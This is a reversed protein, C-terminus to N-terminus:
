NQIKAHYPRNECICDCITGTCIYLTDKHVHMENHQAKCLRITLFTILINDSFFRAAPLTCVYLIIIYTYMYMYIYVHVYICTYTCYTVPLYM